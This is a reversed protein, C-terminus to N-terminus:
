VKGQRRLYYVAGLGALIMFIIMGWENITPVGVPGGGGGPGGQDVIVGDVAVSM